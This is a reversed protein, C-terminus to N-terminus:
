LSCVSTRTVHPVFILILASDFLNFLNIQTPLVEILRLQRNTISFLQIAAALEVCM